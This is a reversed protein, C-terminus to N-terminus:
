PQLTPYQVVQATSRLGQLWRQFVTETLRYCTEDDVPRDSSRDLTQIIHYGLESRVPASIEGKALSFATEEVAAQLLQGRAFWGLDGGSQRTTVDQSFQAALGAFDAGGDLQARIQQAIAEDAVLIHRAQVQEVSTCAGATVEDRIRQTLLAERLAARYETEDMNDASLQAQLNERSGALEVTAQFETEVEADSITVGQAAAGQAILAQDVLASLVEDRFLNMDAPQPDNVSRIGELRRNVERELTAMTLPEGNVLAALPEITPAAAPTASPAAQAAQTAQSEAPTATPAPGDGGASGGCSTLFFVGLFILFGLVFRTRTSHRKM